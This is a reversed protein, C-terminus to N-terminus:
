DGLLALHMSLKQKLAADSRKLLLTKRKSQLIAAHACACLLGCVVALFFSAILPLKLHRFLCLTVIWVLFFTFLIDSLFASKKM